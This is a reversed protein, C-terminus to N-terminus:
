YQYIRSKTDHSVFGANHCLPRPKTSFCIVRGHLYVERLILLARCKWKLKEMWCLSLSSIWILRPIPLASPTARLSLLMYNNQGLKYPEITAKLVVDRDEALPTRFKLYYVYETDSVKTILKSELTEWYWKKINAVDFHVSALTVLPADVVADVKFSRISKGEEHKAYTTIQRINDQKVIYWDKQKQLTKLDESDASVTTSLLMIVATIVSLVIKM